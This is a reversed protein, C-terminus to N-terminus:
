KELKAKEKLLKLLEDSTKKKYDFVDDGGYYAKETVKFGADILARVFEIDPQQSCQFYSVIVDRRYQKQPDIGAKILANFIKLLTKSDTNGCTSALNFLLTGNESDLKPNQNIIMFFEEFRNNWLAGELAKTNEVPNANIMYLRVEVSDNNLALRKIDDTRNVLVGNKDLQRPKGYIEFMSNETKDDIRFNKYITTDFKFDILQKMDKNICGWKGDKVVWMKDNYVMPLDYEFPIVTQGDDKICGWKNNSKAAYYLYYESFILYEPFRMEDYQFPIIINGSYTIRGWKNNKSVWMSDSFVFSKDFEFPLVTKNKIDVCGWKGNKSATIACFSEQTNYTCNLKTIDDYLGIPFLIKGDEDIVETKGNKSGYYYNSYSINDYQPKIFFNGSRADIAGVGSQEKVIFQTYGYGSEEVIDCNKQIKLASTKLNYIFYGTKKGYNRDTNINLIGIATDPYNIFSFDIGDTTNVLLKGKPTYFDTVIKNAEHIEARFGMLTYMDKDDNVYYDIAETVIYDYKCPILVKNEFVSYVGQKGFSNYIDAYVGDIGGPLDKLNIDNYEYPIVVQKDKISILGYLGADNKVAEYVPEKDYDGESDELQAVLLTPVFLILALLFLKSNM